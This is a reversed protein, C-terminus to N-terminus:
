KPLLKKISNEIIPSDKLGTIIQDFSADSVAGKYTLKGDEYKQKFDEISHTIISNCDVYTDKELGNETNPSIWVLTSAPLGVKEIYTKRKQFQSTCCVLILSGDQSKVVCIFYHSIDSSIQDSTFLYIKKETINSLFLESPLIM